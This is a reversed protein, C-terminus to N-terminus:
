SRAFGALGALRVGAILPALVLESAPNLRREVVTRVGSRTIQTTASDAKGVPRLDCEVVVRLGRLAKETLRDFDERIREEEVAAAVRVEQVEGRVTSAHIDPIRSHASGPQQRRTQRGNDRAPIRSRGQSGILPATAPHGACGALASRLSGRLPTGQCRPAASSGAASTV